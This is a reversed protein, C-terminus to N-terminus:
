LEVEIMRRDEGMRFDRMRDDYRFQVINAQNNVELLCTNNIQISQHEKLSEQIHGEIHLHDIKLYSKELTFAVPDNDFAINLHQEIFRTAVDLTISEKPTNISNSLDKIDLVIHLDTHDQQDSLRFMAIPADHPLGICLSSIYLAIIIFKQIM